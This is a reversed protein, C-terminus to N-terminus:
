YTRRRLVWFVISCLVSLGCAPVFHFLLMHLPDYKCAIHMAVAPPSASALGLLLGSLTPRISYGGRALVLWLIMPPVTFGVTQSLCHTRYGIDSVQFLPSGISLLVLLVVAGALGFPVFLRRDQWHGEEPRNLVVAFYIAVPSISLGLAFEILFRPSTVLQEFWGPRLPGTILILAIVLAYSFLAWLLVLRTPNLPSPSANLESVLENKLEDLSM